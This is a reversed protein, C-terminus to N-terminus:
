HARYMTTMNTYMNTGGYVPAQVQIQIQPQAVQMMAVPPAMMMPAAVMPRQMMMPQAAVQMGGYLAPQAMQVMPRAVAPYAITTQRVQVQQQVANPYGTAMPYGTATAVPTAAAAQPIPMSSLTHDKKLPARPAALGWRGRLETIAVRRERVMSETTDMWGKFFERSVGAAELKDDQVTALWMTTWDEASQTGGKYEEALAEAYGRLLESGLKVPPYLILLHQYHDAKAKKGMERYREYKATWQAVKAKFLASTIDPADDDPADDNESIEDDDVVRNTAARGDSATADPVSEKSPLEIKKQPQELQDILDVWAVALRKYNGSCESAIAVKLRVGYKKDYAAAIAKMEEKDHAGIIRCVAKDNTEVGTLAAKLQAAYWDAPGSLLALLANKVPGSYEQTIARRLSMDYAEEFYKACMANQQPSNSCLVNIYDDGGDHLRHAQKLALKTDVTEDTDRKGKLLTLALRRMDGSLSDSLLDILSEDHSAEWREKAARVRKPHRACLFEVLAAHDVAKGAMALDLIMEDAQEEQVVLFKALYAYWGKSFTGSLERDLLSQLAEGYAERYGISMRALARKSRTALCRILATDDNSWGKCAERVTEIDLYAIFVLLSEHELLLWDLMECLAPAEGGYASVEVETYTEAGGSPDNLSRIWTLAAKLFDGDVEARLASWLPQGYKDEYAQTVGVMKMGDLGGLLRTLLKKDTSWAKMADHLRMAVFDAKEMLLGALCYHLRDGCKGHLAKSLSMDYAKEYAAATARNQAISNSGILEIVRPEDFDEFWGKQCEAHLEEAQASAVAADAAAEEARDGKLLHLLLKKLHRYSRPVAANLHDILSKDRRGEWVKKGAQLEAQTHIVFCELLATEHVGTDYAVESDGCALDIVDAIYEEAGAMAFYMLRAYAGTLFFGETGGKVCLRMDKNYMDRYKKRARVLQSKSRTCLCAILKNDNVGGGLFGGNMAENVTECDYIAVYQKLRRNHAQLRTCCDSIVAVDDACEARAKLVSAIFTENIAKAKTADLEAIVLNDKAEQTASTGKELYSVGHQDTKHAEVKADISQVAPASAGCGM